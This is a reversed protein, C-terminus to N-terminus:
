VDIERLIGKGFFVVLLSVAINYFIAAFYPILSMKQGDFYAAAQLVGFLVAGPLLLIGASVFYMTTSMIKSRIGLLIRQTLISMSIYLLSLSAYVFSAMPVFWWPLGALLTLITFAALGETLSKLVTTLNSFFLKLVDPAPVLYIFPRALEQTFKGSVTLFYLIYSLACVSLLSSFFPSIEGKETLNKFVIGAIGAVAIVVLSGKDLLFMGTRRQEKMQRYFFISAGGTKGPIGSRGARINRSVSKTGIKGEKVAQKATYTRETAQLVDEYYDSNTRRVLAVGLAPFFLALLLFLLAKETEGTILGMMYANIWGVLPVFDIVPLGFYDLIAQIDGDRSLLYAALGFVVIVIMGYLLYKGMRRRRPYPATLSYTCLSFVQACLLIIFWGSTVAFIGLGNLHLFNRMNPIQFCLFLTAMASVGMQRVVGYLLVAQPRIPSTFLMNVDPMAFFTSGQNLGKSISSYSIFGFLCFALARLIPTMDVSLNQSTGGPLMAFVMFAIVLSYVFILAPKKRLQLFTNKLSTLFLYVLASM